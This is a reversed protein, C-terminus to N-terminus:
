ILHVAQKFYQTNQICNSSDTEILSYLFTIQTSVTIASSNENVAFQCILQVCPWLIINCIYKKEMSKKQENLFTFLELANNGFSFLTCLFLSGKFFTVVLTIYESSSRGRHM